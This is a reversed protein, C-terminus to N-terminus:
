KGKPMAYAKRAQAICADRELVKGQVVQVLIAYVADELAKERATM